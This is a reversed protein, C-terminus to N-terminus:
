TIFVNNSFDSYQLLKDCCIATTYIKLKYDIYITCKKKYIKYNFLKKTKKDIQKQEPRYHWM